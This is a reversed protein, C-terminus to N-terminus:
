PVPPPGDAPRGLLDLAAASMALVGTRLTRAADPAYRSSHLSPLPAGGPRHSGTWREPSVSGLQFLFIPTRPTERGYRGFDEGVMGPKQAVVNAPGLAARFAETVRQVLAPDNYLAPTYEDKITVIPLLEDPVRAARATERAIRRISELVAERTPDAYTRVTLQLRVEDPIVNHQAGGHISGVTVVAPESAPIERSVITQLALVIQSALVVPDITQHPYAGHGGRGRVLIDVSDVNAYAFEPIFGVKGSELGADVHLALAFDPRPFRTFLGDALMAKAGAGREEAPQAIMVLTGSWRDRMSALVEAVGTWVSMHIDHGCAHMVGVDQGQDNRARVRSAHELGTEEVVPLADMDARIMLTPGEGNRLLGVVGHGGVGRTVEFGHAELAAAMKASTTTEQFSLEPHRHLDVYTEMLRPHMREVLSRVAESSDAATGSSTGASTGPAPQATLTVALGLMAAFAMLFGTRKGPRPGDPRPLHPM